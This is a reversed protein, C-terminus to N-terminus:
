MYPIRLFKNSLVIKDILLIVTRIPEQIWTVWRVKSTSKSFGIIRMFASLFRANTFSLIWFNSAQYTFVLSNCCAVILQGVEFSLLYGISGQISSTPLVCIIFLFSISLVTFAMKRQKSLSQNLNKRTSIVTKIILSNFIILLTFPLISFLFLFSKQFLFFNKLNNFCIFYFKSLPHCNFLNWIDVSNWRKEKYISGGMNM